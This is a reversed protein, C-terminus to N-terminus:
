NGVEGHCLPSTGRSPQQFAAMGIVGLSIQLERDLAKATVVNSLLPISASQPKAKTAAKAKAAARERAKALLKPVKARLKSREESSYAQGPRERRTVAKQLVQQRPRPPRSKPCIFNFRGMSVTLLPPLAPSSGAGVTWFCSSGHLPAM